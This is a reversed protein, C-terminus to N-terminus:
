DEDSQRDLLSTQTRRSEDIIIRFIAGIAQDDLPGTNSRCLGGILERERESDRVPANQERKLRAIERVIEARQSLLRLMEADLADIQRRWDDITTKM